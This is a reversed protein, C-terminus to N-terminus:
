GRRADVRPPPVFGQSLARNEFFVAERDLRQLLYYQYLRYSAAGSNLMSAHMLWQLMRRENKPVNNTGREYMDAVRLAAHADGQMGAAQYMRFDHDSINLDQEVENKGLRELLAAQENASRSVLEQEPAAARTSGIAGTSAGNSSFGVHTTSPSQACGALLCAIPVILTSRKM